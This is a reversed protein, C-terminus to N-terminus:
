CRRAVACRVVAEDFSKVGTAHKIVKGGPLVIFSQAVLPEDAMARKRMAEM